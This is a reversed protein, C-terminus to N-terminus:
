SIDNEHLQREMVTEAYITIYYEIWRCCSRSLQVYSQKYFLTLNQWHSAYVVSKYACLAVAHMLGVTELLQMYM